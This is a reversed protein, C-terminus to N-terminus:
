NIKITDAIEICLATQSPSDPGGCHLFYGVNDKLSIWIWVTTLGALAEVRVFPQGNIKLNKASKIESGVSQIAKMAEVVYHSYEVSEAESKSFIVLTGSNQYIAKFGENDVSRDVLVWGSGPLIFQWNSGTVIKIDKPMVTSATADPLQCVDADCDHIVSDRTCSALGVLMFLAFINKM